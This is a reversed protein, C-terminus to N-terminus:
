RFGVHAVQVNRRADGPQDLRRQRQLVPHYRRKQMVFRWIRPHIECRGRKIRHGLQRWPRTRIHRSQRPNRGKAHAAGINMHHQLLSRGQRHNVHGGGMARLDVRHRCRRGLCQTRRYCRKTIPSPGIRGSIRRSHTGRQDPPPMGVPFATNQHRISQRAQGCRRFTKRAFGGRRPPAIRHRKQEGPLAGLMDTHRTRQKICFRHETLREAQARRQQLGRKPKIQQIHDM